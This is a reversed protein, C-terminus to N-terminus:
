RGKWGWRGEGSSGGGSLREREGREEMRLFVLLNNVDERLKNIEEKMASVEQWLQSLSAHDEEYMHLRLDALDREKALVDAIGPRGSAHQYQLSSLPQPANEFRLSFPVAPGRSQSTASARLAAGFQASGSELSDRGDRGSEQTLIRSDRRDLQISHQRFPSSAMNALITSAPRLINAGQFVNADTHAETEVWAEERRGSAEQQQHFGQERRWSGEATVGSTGVREPHEKSKAQQREIGTQRVRKSPPEVQTHVTDDDMEDDESRDAKWKGRAEDELTVAQRVLDVLIREERLIGKVKPKKKDQATGDGKQEKLTRWRSLCSSENLGDKGANPFFRRNLADVIPPWRQGSRSKGRGFPNIEIIKEVLLCDMELTFRRMKKRQMTPTQANPAQSM